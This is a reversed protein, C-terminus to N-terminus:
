ESFHESPGRGEAEEGKEAAIQEANSRPILMRLDVPRSRIERGDTFVVKLTLEHKSSRVAGLRVTFYGIDGTKITEHIPVVVKYDRGDTQLVADYEGHGPSIDGAMPHGLPVYAEFPLTKRVARGDVVQDYSLKGLVGAGTNVFLPGYEHDVFKGQARRWERLIQDPEEDRRDILKQITRVDVGSKRLEDSLNFEAFRDIVAKTRRFPLVDPINRRKKSLPALAFELVVNRMPGWGDNILGLVFPSAGQDEVIPLPESDTDSKKVEVELRSALVTEAANNVLKFDLRPFFMRFGGMAPLPTLRAGARVRELYPLKPTVAIRGEALKAAYEITEVDGDEFEDEIKEPNRRTWLDLSIGPLTGATANDAPPSAKAPEAQPPTPSPPTEALKRGVLCPLWWPTWLFLLIGGWGSWERLKWKLVLPNKARGKVKWRRCFLAYAGVMLGITTGAVAVQPTVWKNATDVAGLVGGCALVAGSGFVLTQVAAVLKSGGAGNDM